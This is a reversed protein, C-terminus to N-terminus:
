LRALLDAEANPTAATAMAELQSILDADDTTFAWSKYFFRVSPSPAAPDIEVMAVLTLGLPESKLQYTISGETEDFNLAESVGILAWANDEDSLSAKLAAVLEPSM